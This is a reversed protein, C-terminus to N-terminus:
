GSDQCSLNQNGDLYEQRVQEIIEMYNVARFDTTDVIITQGSIPVPELEIEVVAELERLAEDHFHVGGRARSRFRELIVEPEARLFIQFLRCGTRNRIEETEDAALDPLLPSEIMVPFGATLVTEAQQYMLAISAVGLRGSAARDEAGLVSGLKEKISDKAFLPIRLKESLMFALHSKGTCPRGNVIIFLPQEEKM